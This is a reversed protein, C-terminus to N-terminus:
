EGFHIPILMQFDPRPSAVSDAAECPPTRRWLLWGGVHLAEMYDVLAVDALKSGLEDDNNDEEEQM